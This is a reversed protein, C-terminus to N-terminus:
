RRVRRLACRVAGYAAVVLRLQLVSCRKIADVCLREEVSFRKRSRYVNQWDGNDALSRLQQKREGDSLPNDKHFAHQRVWNMVGGFTRNNLHELFDADTIQLNEKLSVFAQHVAFVIELANPLYRSRSNGAVNLNYTYFAKDCVAVNGTHRMFEINFLEDEQVRFTGFRVRHTELLSRKYLKNWPFGNGHRVKFLDQTYHSAIEKRNALYENPLTVTETEEGTNIFFSFVLLDPAADQAIIRAATELFGKELLDDIDMFGVYNGCAKGIGYNRAKGVGENEKHYCKIRNDTAAVGDIAEGSGDTSGDDVVIVEFDSFTQDILSKLGSEVFRVSNYCPVIISFLPSM